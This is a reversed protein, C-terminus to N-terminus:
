YHWSEIPVDTHQLCKVSHQSVMYEATNHLYYHDTRVRFRTEYTVLYKRRMLFYDAMSIPLMEVSGFSRNVQRSESFDSDVILMNRALGDMAAVSSTFNKQNARLRSQSSIVVVVGAIVATAAVLFRITFRIRM